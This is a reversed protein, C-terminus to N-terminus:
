EGPHIDLSIGQLVHSEIDGMRYTKRIDRLSIIPQASM